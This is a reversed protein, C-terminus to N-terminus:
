LIEVEDRLVEYGERGAEIFNMVKQFSSDLQKQSLAVCAIALVSRQWKDQYGAEIVSVNFRRRIRDKLSKLVYRKSKLSGSSHLFLEVKLVGATM